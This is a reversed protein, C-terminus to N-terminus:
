KPDDRDTLGFFCLPQMPQDVAVLLSWIWIPM